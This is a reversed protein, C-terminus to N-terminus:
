DETTTAALVSHALDRAQQQSMIVSADSAQIETVVMEVLRGVRYVLIVGPGDAGHGDVRAILTREGMVGFGM